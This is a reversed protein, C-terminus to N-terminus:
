VQPKPANLSNIIDEPAYERYIRRLDEPTYNRALRLSALKQHFNVPHQPHASQLVAVHLDKIHISLRSAIECLDMFSIRLALAWLHNSLLRRCETVDAPVIRGFEALVHAFDHGQGDVNNGDHDHFLHWTDRSTNGMRIREYLTSRGESDCEVLEDHTFEFEDLAHFQEFQGVRLLFRVFSIGTYQQVHERLNLFARQFRELEWFHDLKANLEHLDVVKQANFVSRYAELIHIAKVPYNLEFMRFLTKVCGATALKVMFAPRVLRGDLLAKTMGSHTQMFDHFQAWMARLDFLYMVDILEFLYMVDNPHNKSLACKMAELPEFGLYYTYLVETSVYPHWETLKDMLSMFSWPTTENETLQDLDKYDERVDAPDRLLLTDYDWVLKLEALNERCVDASVEKFLLRQLCELTRAEKIEPYAILQQAQSM